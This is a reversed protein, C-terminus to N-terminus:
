SDSLVDIEVHFGRSNFAAIAAEDVASSRPYAFEVRSKVIDLARIYGIKRHGLYVQIGENQSTIHGIILSDAEINM